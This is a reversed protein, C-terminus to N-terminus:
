DDAGWTIIQVQSKQSVANDVSEKIEDLKTDLLVGDNTQVQSTLTKPAFKDGNKDNLWGTKITTSM